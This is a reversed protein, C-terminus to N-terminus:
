RTGEPETLPMTPIGHEYRLGRRSEARREARLWITLVSMLLALVVVGGRFSGTRDIWAGAATVGSAASFAAVVLGGSVARVALDAPLSRHATLGFLGWIPLNFMAFGFTAVMLTPYSWGLALVVLSVAYAAAIVSMVGVPSGRDSIRGIPWAAAMGVASALWWPAAAALPSVLLEDVAVESLYAAFTFGGPGAVMSTLIVIRGGPASWIRRWVSTGRTRHTSEEPRSPSDVPRRFVLLTTGIMCAAVVSAIVFAARWEGPGTLTQVFVGNIGNGVGAGVGAVVMVRGGAGPAVLQGAMHVIVSWSIPSSLGIVVVCLALLLPSGAVSVALFGAGCVALCFILLARPPVLEVVRLGLAAGLGYAVLNTALALGLVGYGSGFSEAIRPLLAPVLGNGFGHTVLIVVGFLVSAMVPSVLRDDAGRRVFPGRGRAM